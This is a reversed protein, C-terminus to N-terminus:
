LLFKLLYKRGLLMVPFLNRLFMIKPFDGLIKYILQNDSRHLSQDGIPIQISDDSHFRLALVHHNLHHRRLHLLSQELGNNTMPM